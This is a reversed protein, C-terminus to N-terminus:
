TLIQKYANPMRTIDDVLDPVGVVKKEVYMSSEYFARCQESQNQLQEYKIQLERYEQELTQNQYQLEQLKHNLGKDNNLFRM